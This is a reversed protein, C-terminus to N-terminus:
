NIEVTNRPRMRDTATQEDLREAFESETQQHGEDTYPSVGEPVPMPLRGREQGLTETYAAPDISVGLSTVKSVYERPQWEVFGEPTPVARMDGHEFVVANQPGLVPFRPIAETIPGGGWSRVTDVIPEMDQIPHKGANVHANARDDANIVFRKRDAKKEEKTHLRWDIKIGEPFVEPVSRKTGVVFNVMTGHGPARNGAPSWQAADEASVVAKELPVILAMEKPPETFRLWRKLQDVTVTSVSGFAKADNRHAQYAAIAEAESNWGLFLKDEDYLGNHPNGQHVIYVDTARPNPGLYCDVHEGDAGGTGDVYGYAFLMETEGTNGNSDKWKRKTGAHNEITIPIGQFETRGHQKIAKYLSDEQALARKIDDESTYRQGYEGGPVLDGNADWGWGTPIFVMQCQCNPHVPGVVAKWDAAKRGYNTGNSELYDLRFIRPQGDPGLHLRICHQCADPRPQKAVLAGGGNRKAIGDAVGRQMAAHSETNAIRDWDRAWDHTKWKLDSVISKLAKRESIGAAVTNRIKDVRDARLQADANIILQGTDQSIRNGLGVAYQAAQHKAFDVARRETESLPIPNNALWAKFQEFTMNRIKAQNEVAAMAHGYLYADEITSITNKILGKSKLAELVEAPVAEPGITNVTFANHHDQIIRRIEHLQEDSIPM